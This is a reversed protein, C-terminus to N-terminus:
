NLQLRIEGGPHAASHVNVYLGGSRYTSYQEPTLRSGAPVSWLTASTKTLPILVPGNTGVAGQHIHAATGEIGSTTVSGSVSRDAAVVISSTATAASDVAPVEQSGTLEQSRGAGLTTSGVLVGLAAVLGAAAAAPLTFRQTSRM